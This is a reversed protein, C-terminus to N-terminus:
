RIKLYKANDKDLISLRFALSLMPLDVEDTPENIPILRCMESVDDMLLRYFTVTALQVFDM